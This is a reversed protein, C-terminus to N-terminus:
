LDELQVVLNCDDCKYAYYVDIKEGYRFLVKHAFLDAHWKNGDGKPVKVKKLQMKKFCQKCKKSKFWKNILAKYSMHYDIVQSM